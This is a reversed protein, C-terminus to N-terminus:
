VGKAVIYIEVRRNKENGKKTGTNPELPRYEGFGRISLRDPAVNNKTMISLVSIARDASLHWNTPHKAKTEPRSIPVDDTHGAIIVDYKKGEDSDLISCLSKITNTGAASVDDSGKDFLLDSHFKVVGRTSDFSVMGNSGKAFDDLKTALEVPLAAGYLGEKGVSGLLAKKQDLDKELAAVTQELSDTKVKCESNADALQRGVQDAQLTEVRLKSELDAITKRQRENQIQQDNACGSILSITLIVAATLFIKPRIM